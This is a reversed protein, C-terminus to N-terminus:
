YYGVTTGDVSAFILTGGTSLHVFFPEEFTFTGSYKRTINNNEYVTANFKGGKEFVFLTGQLVDSSNNGSYFWGTSSYLQSPNNKGTKSQRTLKVTDYERIFHFSYIYLSDNIIIYESDDGKVTLYEDDASWDGTNNYAGQVVADGDKTFCLTYYDNTWVGTVNGTNNVAKSSSRKYTLGDLTLNKGELVFDDYAYGSTRLTNEDIEYDGFYCDYYGDSYEHEEVYKGDATFIMISTGDNDKYKWVGVISPESSTTDQSGTACSCLLVILLVIIISFLKRPM